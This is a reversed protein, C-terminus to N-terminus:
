AAKFTAIISNDTFGTTGAVSRTLTPNVAAASTQILTALVGGHFAGSIVDLQEIISFGSDISFTSGAPDDIGYFAVCLERGQTPTVSGPSRTTTVNDGAFSSGNQQDYPSTTTIGAAAVVTLTGSGNTTSFTHGTGVTPNAVYWIRV